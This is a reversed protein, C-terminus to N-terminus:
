LLAKLLRWYGRLLIRPLPARVLDPFFPSDLDATLIGAFERAPISRSSQISRRERALRPLWGLLALWARVKQKLWGGRSAVVVLALETLILAPALLVLLAAPYTRIIMAWRNRELWFWKDPGREFEYEHDVIAEVNIGVTEGVSRLRLSFDTDEQYLFFQEAFGGLRNWSEPKVALCAGSATPVPGSVGAAQVPTGHGGAWAIGTFHVPNGKTNILAQGADRYIVLGMWASWQPRSQLPERIASGFGPEPRADPNLIVLLDGAALQAGRNIAAAFGSNGGMEVIMAAPLHQTVVAQLDDGSDNDLLIVEDGNELETALGPLSRSLDDASDHTM